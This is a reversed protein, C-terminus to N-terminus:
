YFITSNDYLKCGQMLIYTIVGKRTILKRLIYIYILVRLM